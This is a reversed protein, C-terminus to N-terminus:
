KMLITIASDVHFETGKMSKEIEKQYRQLLFKFLKKIIENTESGMM